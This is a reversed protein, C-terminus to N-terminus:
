HTASQPPLSSIAIKTSPTHAALLERFANDIARRIDLYSVVLVSAADRSMLMVSETSGADVKCLADINHGVDLVPAGFENLQFFLYDRFLSVIYREGTGAWRWDDFLGPRDAISNVKLLLDLSRGLDVSKRYESALFDGQLLTDGARGAYATGLRSVLESAGIDRGGLLDAVVSQVQGDAYAGTGSSNAPRLEDLIKGFAALDQRQAEKVGAVSAATKALFVDLVGVCNLHVRSYQPGSLLLKSPAIARIALNQGHVFAIAALGQLLVDVFFQESIAHGAQSLFQELTMAQDVYEYVMVLSGGLDKFGECEQFEQTVFASRLTVLNPHSGINSGTWRGITEQVLDYNSLM